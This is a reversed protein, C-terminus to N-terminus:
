IAKRVRQAIERAAENDFNNIAHELDVVSSAIESGAANKQLTTLCNLAEGM